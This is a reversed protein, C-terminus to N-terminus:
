NGWILQNGDPDLLNNGDPDLLYQVTIPGFAVQYIGSGLDTITSGAFIIKKASYYVSGDSSIQTSPPNNPTYVELATDNPYRKAFDKAAYANVCLFVLASFTLLFRMSITM